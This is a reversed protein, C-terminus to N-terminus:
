IGILMFYYNLLYFGFFITLVFGLNLFPALPLFDKMTKRHFVLLLLGAFGGLLFALFLVMIVDPWGILWGLVFALKVDGGGMVRGQSLYFFLAFFLGAISAALLHNKWINVPGVSLFSYHRLFSLGGSLPALNAMQSKGAIFVCGLLFLVVLLEDPIFYNRFDILSILLLVLLVAIWIGCFQWIFPEYQFFYPHNSAWFPVTMFILGSLLEVLPYQWSIKKGCSRCREAQLFFSVVPILEYWRLEKLCHLCHSRGRIKKPSFVWQGPQFRLSVVNLFSGAALGLLFLFFYFLYPM